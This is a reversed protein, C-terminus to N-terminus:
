MREYGPTDTSWRNLIRAPLALLAPSTGAATNLRGCGRAGLLHAMTGRASGSTSGGLWSLRRFLSLKGGSARCYTARPQCVCVDRESTGASRRAATASRGMVSPARVGPWQTGQTTHQQMCGKECRGGTCIYGVKLCSCNSQLMPPICQAFAGQWTAGVNLEWDFRKSLLKQHTM